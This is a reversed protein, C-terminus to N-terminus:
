TASSCTASAARSSSIRSPSPSCSRPQEDAAADRAGGRRDHRHDCAAPRRRLAAFLRPPAALREGAVLRGPRIADLAHSRGDGGPVPRCRRARLSRGGGPGARVPRRVLHPARRVLRRRPPRALGDRPAASQRRVARRSIRRQVENGDRLWGVLGALAFLDRRGTLHASLLLSVSGVILLTMATDTTGFHSDRAHIFTSRSFCPPSSRRRKTGSSAPSGTCWSCRRRRRGTASLARSILFFPEWSCLGARSWTPSPERLVRHRSGVRLLRPVPRDAGVHVALSLRLLGAQLRRAPFYLTVDIIQTEDPRAQTHPLGFGLGWFRVAAALALIGALLVSASTLRAARLGRLRVGYSLISSSSGFLRGCTLVTQVQIREPLM